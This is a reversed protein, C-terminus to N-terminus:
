DNATDDSTTGEQEDEEECPIATQDHCVPCELVRVSERPTIMHDKVQRKEWTGCEACPDVTALFGPDIRTEQALRLLEGRMLDVQKRLEQLSSM